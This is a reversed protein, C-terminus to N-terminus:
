PAYLAPVYLATIQSDHFTVDGSDNRCVLHFTTPGAPVAFTRTGSFPIAQLSADVNFDHVIIAHSHDIAIAGDTISCLVDDFLTTELRVYGSSTVIVHGAAPADLVVGRVSQASSTLVLDQNGDAFNVGAPQAAAALDASTIAGDAIKPSTIQGNGIDAATVTGNRIDLGRVSDNKLDATNVTGNAIDVTRVAGTAIDVSQISGSQIQASGVSNFGVTALAVGGALVVATVIVTTLVIALRSGATPTELKGM